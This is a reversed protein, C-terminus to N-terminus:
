LMRGSGDRAGDGVIRPRYPDYEGQGGGGGYGYGGGGYEDRERYSATLSTTSGTHMRDHMGAQLPVNMSSDSSRMPSRGGAGAFGGDGGYMPKESVNGMAYAPGLPASRTAAARRRRAMMIGFVAGLLAIAAVAGVIVGVTTGTNSSKNRSSGTGSSGAGDGGATGSADLRVNAPLDAASATPQAGMQGSGVIVYTGNSPVGGVVVFVLAPGPQFINPNPPLQAVHLTISGDSNVTYTNNLQLYRQGMNMAHTTFGGRIVAVHTRDAADNAAGSYSSAPVTIDFSPGGYSLKTPVGSPSPRTTASFYPPYFIEARYTTPFPVTLNVDVNPNSGAVFISGDPLLMASSHYLRPITSSSLGQASWRSGAPRNPDYISPTLVPGSALSMAFPMLDLSPTEGTKDAYGATGNQGGNIVLMKGDPLIIFQGMTRTDMMEDDRVYVPTSGDTPEPTIRQCDRSAPYNWTNIAPNSYNGYADSPM